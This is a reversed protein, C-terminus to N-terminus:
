PRVKGPRNTAASVAAGLGLFGLAALVIAGSSAIDWYYSVVLGIVVSAVGIAAALGMTTRFGRRLYLSALVPFTILAGVLLGGVIRMSLTVTVGTLIALAMNVRGVPVGSVRALDPDFTSQVLDEYRFLVLALVAAALAVAAWVDSVGVTVISGFLLGFLNVSLGEGLSIFVLALALATYLVLAMASDGALRNTSRLWELAMAAVASVVLGVAIPYRGLLLGVAAGAIAM